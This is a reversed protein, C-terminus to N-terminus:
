GVSESGEDSCFGIFACWRSVHSKSKLNEMRRSAFLWDILGDHWAPRIYTSFIFLWWHQLYWVHLERGIWPHSPHSSDRLDSVQDKKLIWDYEAGPLKTEGIKDRCYHNTFRHYWVRERERVKGMLHTHTHNTALTLNSSPARCTFSSRLLDHEGGEERGEEPIKHQGAQWWTRGHCSSQGIPRLEFFRYWAHTFRSKRLIKHMNKKEIKNNDKEKWGEVKEGCLQTHLLLYNLNTGRRTTSYPTSGRKKKRGGRVNNSHWVGSGVSLLPHTHRSLYGHVSFCQALPLFLCVPVSM